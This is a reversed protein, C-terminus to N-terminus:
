SFSKGNRHRSSATTSLDKGLLASSALISNSFIPLSQFSWTSAYLLTYASRSSSIRFLLRARSSSAFRSCTERWFCRVSNQLLARSAASCSFTLRANHRHCFRAANHSFRSRRVASFMNKATALLRFIELCRFFVCCAAASLAIAWDHASSAMVKTISRTIISALLFCHISCVARTRSIRKCFAATVCLAFSNISFVFCVLLPLNTFFVWSASCLSHKSMAASSSYWLRMKFNVRRIPTFGAKFTMQRAARAFARTM